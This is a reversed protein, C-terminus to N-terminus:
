DCRIQSLNTTFDFNCFLITLFFLTNNLKKGTPAHYGYVEVECLTLIRDSGPLLVTVYRGEVRNSFTITHSSGAPISSIIAVRFSLFFGTTELREIICFLKPYISFVSSIILSEGHTQLAMTKYSTALIFRQEM